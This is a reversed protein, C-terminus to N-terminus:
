STLISEAELQRILEAADAEVRARSIHFQPALRRSVEKASCGQVILEWMQRATSNLTFATGQELQLLLMDRGLAEAALGPHPRAVPRQKTHKTSPQQPARTIFFDDIREIFLLGASQAESLVEDANRFAHSFLVPPNPGPGQPAWRDGPEPVFEPFLRRAAARPADVMLESGLSRASLKVPFIVLGGPRVM